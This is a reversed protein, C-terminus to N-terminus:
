RPQEEGVRLRSPEWRQVQVDVRGKRVTADWESKDGVRRFQLDVQANGIALGHLTVEPLWRPLQPDVYLCGRPADAQIGLM